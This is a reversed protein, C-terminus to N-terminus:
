SYTFTVSLLAHKSSKAVGRDMCIMKRRGEFSIFILLLSYGEHLVVLLERGPAVSSSGEKEM